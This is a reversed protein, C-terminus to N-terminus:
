KFSDSKSQENGPVPRCQASGVWHEQPQLQETYRDMERMGTWLQSPHERHMCGRCLLAEGASATLNNGCNLFGRQRYCGAALAAPTHPLSDQVGKGM